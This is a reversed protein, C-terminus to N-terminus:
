QYFMKEIIFRKEDAHYRYIGVFQQKTDYVRVRECDTFGQHKELYKEAFANGNYILREQEPNIILSRYDSFMQDIPILVNQLSDSKVLEEIESLRLSESLEFRSVKTRLLSEM